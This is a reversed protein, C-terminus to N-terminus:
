DDKKVENGNASNNVGVINASAIIEDRVRALINLHISSESTFAETILNMEAISFHGKSLKTFISKDDSKRIIEIQYFESKIKLSSINYLDDIRMLEKSNREIKTIESLQDKNIVIENLTVSEADPVSRLINTFMAVQDSQIQLLKPQQKILELTIEHRNAEAESKEINNLYSVYSSSGALLTSAGLVLMVVQTGTMKEMATKGMETFFGSIDAFVASSGQEVKFVIELNNREELTLSRASKGYIVESYVRNLHTQLEVLSRMLSTPLTSNYRNGKVNIQFQPWNDFNLEVVDSDYKGELSKQLFELAQSDNEIKLAIASV